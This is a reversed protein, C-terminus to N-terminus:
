SVREWPAVPRRALTVPLDQPESAWGRAQSESRFLWDPEGLMEPDDEFVAWEYEVDSM